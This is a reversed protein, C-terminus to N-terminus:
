LERSLHAGVCAEELQEGALAPQEIRQAVTEPEFRHRVLPKTERQRQQMRRQQDGRNCQGVPQEIPKCKCALQEEVACRDGAMQLAIRTASRHEEANGVGDAKEAPRCGDSENAEGSTTLLDCPLPNRGRTIFLNLKVNKIDIVHADHPPNVVTPGDLATATGTMAGKMLVGGAGDGESPNGDVRTM